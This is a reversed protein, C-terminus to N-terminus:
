GFFYDSHLVQNIDLAGRAPLDPLEVGYAEEHSAKFEGLVDSYTHLAVFQERIHKQLKEAHCAHVGFDDHIM